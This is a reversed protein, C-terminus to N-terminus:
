WDEEHEILRWSGRRVREVLGRKALRRLADSGDSSAHKCCPGTGSALIWGIPHKGAAHMMRGVQFPRVSEFTRMWRLVERQRDSLPRTKRMPYPTEHGDLGLQAGTM